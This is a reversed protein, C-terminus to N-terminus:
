KDVELPNYRYHGTIPYSFLMDELEPGLGINHVVKYRRGDFSKKNSVLGIHPLMKKKGRWWSAVNWTVIDGPVYDKPDNTIKLKEGHRSFFVQLNPVRRHDINTDTTNLSWNKPYFNFNGKMDEHVKQQLDVGVSRYSRIVVDTCVGVDASVDGMPYKIKRYAGDYKVKHETRELASAVLQDRFSVSEKGAYASSNLGLASFFLLIIVRNLVYM